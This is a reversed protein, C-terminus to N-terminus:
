PMGPLRDRKTLEQLFSVSDARSLAAEKLLGWHEQFRQLEERGRLLRSGAPYEIYAFNQEAEAFRLIEFDSDVFRVNADFKLIRLELREHQSTLALLHEAQDVVLESTRGGPMRHMSSESLIVEYRPPNEITFIQIRAKRERLLQAVEPRTTAHEHQRLMYKESQLPGPIRESHWSKIHAATPEHAILHAFARWPGAGRNRPPAQTRDLAALRRLEEAKQAGIGYLAVLSDLDQPSVAVYTTEIKNVKGQLCGLETAVQQQTLNAARRAARLERGLLLRRETPGRSVRDTVV